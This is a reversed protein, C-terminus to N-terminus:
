ANQELSKLRSIMAEVRSRALENKSMLQSRESTLQEQSQRLSRNEDQLRRTVEVLRDVSGVSVAEERFLHLNQLATHCGKLSDLEANPIPEGGREEFMLADNIGYEGSVALLGRAQQTLM